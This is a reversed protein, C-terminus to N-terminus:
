IFPLLVLVYGIAFIKFVNLILANILSSIIIILIILNLYTIKINENKLSDFKIIM